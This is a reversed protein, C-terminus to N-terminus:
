VVYLRIGLGEIRERWERSLGDDTIIASFASLRAFTGPYIKDFKSHDTMLINEISANMVASKIQIEFPDICSVNLKVDVGNASIFAKHVSTRAILSIGEPSQFMQTNNKLYGGACIIQCQVYDRLSFLTTTNYCLVSLPMDPSLFSAITETTTGADLAIVDGPKILSAAFKGIRQKQESSSTRARKIDYAESVPTYAASEAAPIYVAVGNILKAMGIQQLVEMDRRVTIESVSLQEAMEKIPVAIDKALLALEANIRDQKKTSM